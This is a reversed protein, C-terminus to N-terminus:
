KKLKLKADEEEFYARLRNREALIKLEKSEMFGTFEMQDNSLKDERVKLSAEIKSLESYKKEYESRADRMKATKVQLDDELQLIEQKKENILKETKAVTKEREKLPALAEKKREELRTIEQILPAVIQPHDKYAKRIKENIKELEKKVMDRAENLKLALSTEEEKLKKVRDAQESVARNKETKVHEPSLLKM